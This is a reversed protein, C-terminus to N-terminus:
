DPSLRGLVAARAAGTVEPRNGARDELFLFALYAFAMAEKLDPNVGLEASSTVRWPALAAGLRRMLEGNHVGGGSVAVIGPSRGSVRGATVVFRRFADAIAGVSFETATALLDHWDADSQPPRRELLEDVFSAGFLERGTSRPLDEAFFPLAMAWGLLAEDVRGRTAWAGNEDRRARGGSWRRALEDLLMNGPGCDLAVVQREGSEQRPPVLTFNSIGGINLALVPERERALLDRDFVPVLPAGSGGAVVDARRFDSVVPCGLREAIFGPEGIQLTTVRHEHHVTQGHSGVLDLSLGHEATVEALAEAMALGLTMDLRALTAADAEGAAILAEGLEPDLPRTAGHLLSLAPPADADPTRRIRCLAIDLGDVSTGTILGAVTLEDKELLRMLRRM